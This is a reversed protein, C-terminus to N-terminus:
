AFFEEKINMKGDQFMRPDMTKLEPSVKIEFDIHSLVDKELDMGPAIETLLLGEETLKFVARESVYLVEHGNKLAEKGSFTIAEVKEVFKNVKGEQDIVLKGDAVTEKLGAATLTGCFVAKKTNQCIDIFGGTGMIKNNFQHVNVNGEKDVEAFSLFCVDLGGGHYFDFQAPMDLQAQMNITAGFFIGQATAGGIPGTEVTLTFEESIGEEQAVTGIGDAIGVGVNGVFGPKLEQLCRRAVVKRQTLPLPTVDGLDMTYDGSFFRNVQPGAYLQTQEPVVVLVDILYGPIRINKPHLTRRKVIKQVQCIVIGGNNHVAQAEALADLIAIEDEFTVYGEADATTARIFAVDPRIAPYFIYEEGNVEQIKLLEETTKENLRGGQVRPDVFTGLGTKSLIGPQHAAATRLLQSLIGQPFNYAEIKNQEAMEALRPSQGWHGGYIRKVLGDQALPSMGRDARDGLGTAHWLTLDKPAGTNKFREALALILSTPETLGGGAGLFTVTDNDKILAVAEEATMVKALISDRVKSAM